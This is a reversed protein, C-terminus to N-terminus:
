LVGDLRWRVIDIKQSPDQLYSVGTTPDKKHVPGKTLPRIMILDAKGANAFVSCRSYSYLIFMILVTLWIGAKGVCHVRLAIHFYRGHM